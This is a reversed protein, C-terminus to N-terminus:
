FLDLDLLPTDGKSRAGGARGAAPESESLVAAAALWPLRQSRPHCVQGSM